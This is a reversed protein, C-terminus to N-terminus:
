QTSDKHNTLNKIGDLDHESLYHIFYSGLGNDSKEKSAWSEIVSYKGIVKIYSSKGLKTVFEVEYFM